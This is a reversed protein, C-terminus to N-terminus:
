SSAMRPPAAVCSTSDPSGPPAVNSWSSAAVCLSPIGRTFPPNRGVASCQQTFVWVGDYRSADTSAARAATAAAKAASAEQVAQAQAAAVEVLAKAKAEAADSEAKGRLAATESEAKARLAAAETEARAKIADAAADSEAKARLMSADAEARAKVVNADATKARQEADARAKESLALESELKAKALDAPAVRVEAERPAGIWGQMWAIGGALAAITIAGIGIATARSSIPASVPRSAIGTRITDRAGSVRFARIPRSINKPTQEGMDQFGLDLKGTIQDYVSSSVLIGGPQALSELRAAVNVGDGLLDNGKVVVEGLNIGIRFLMRQTESLSENRTKLADQIEVAGRVADVVSHFEALVSDGATSVIRGDHSAIVGDIVARHEMLIRLANGEDESVLRSYGVADAALICTLRRKLGPPDM